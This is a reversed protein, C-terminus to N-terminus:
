WQDAWCDEVEWEESSSMIAAASSKDIATDEGLYHHESAMLHRCLM